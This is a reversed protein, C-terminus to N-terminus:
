TATCAPGDAQCWLATLLQHIGNMHRLLHTVGFKEPTTCIIDAARLDDIAGATSGIDGTMERCTIGLAGGLRRQWNEM